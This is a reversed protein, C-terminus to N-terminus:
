PFDYLGGDHLEGFFHPRVDQAGHLSAALNQGVCRREVHMQHLTM